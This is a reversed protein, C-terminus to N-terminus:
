YSRPHRLWNAMEEPSCAGVQSPGKVGNPSVIQVRPIGNVGFQQAIDGQADVDIKVPIYADMAQDVDADSWVTRKMDQCPPCWDATFYVLVPKRSAAAERQAAALDTRWDIIDKPQSWQRMGWFGFAGVALLLLLMSPGKVESSM